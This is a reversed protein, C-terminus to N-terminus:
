HLAPRCRRDDPVRSPEHERHPDRQWCRSDRDHMRPRDVHVRIQNQGCHVPKSKPTGFEIPIILSSLGTLLAM